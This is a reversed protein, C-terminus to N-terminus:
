KSLLGLLLVMLATEGARKRIYVMSNVVQWKQSSPVLPFCQYHKYDRPEKGWCGRFDKAFM